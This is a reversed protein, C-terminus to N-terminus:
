SVPGVKWGAPYNAKYAAVAAARTPYGILTKHDDFSGDPKAQDVVFVPGDYDRPAGEAILTDVHAGDSGETGKIYGYHGSKIESSWQPPNNQKDSRTSGAPNEISVPMTAGRPGITTHGKVYNGALAQPGTPESLTNLPSTAAAHAAADITQAPAPAQPTDATPLDPQAVKEPAAESVGQVATIKNGFHVTRGQDWLEIPTMGVAPRNSTKTITREILKDADKGHYIRLSAHTGEPNTVIHVKQDGWEGQIEALAIAGKDDVYFTHESRPQPGQQGPHEPRAKKDRTTTGDDHVVYTSGKATSFSLGSTSGSSPPASAKPAQGGSASPASSQGGLVKQANLLRKVETQLVRARETDSPDGTAMLADQHNQLEDVRRGIAEGHQKLETATPAPAAKEGEKLVPPNRKAEVAAEAATIAAGQQQQSAKDATKQATQVLKDAAKRADAQQMEAAKKADAQQKATAQQAQEAARDPAPQVIFSGKIGPAPVAEYTIGERQTRSAANMDAAAQTRFPLSFNKPRQEEAARATEVEAAHADAPGSTADVTAPAPQDTIPGGAIQVKDGPAPTPLALHDAMGARVAGAAAEALPGGPALAQLRAAEADRAAYVSDAHDQAAQQAASVISPNLGAEGDIPNVSLQGPAPLAIPAAGADPQVPAAEAALKKQQARHALAHGALGFPAMLGVMGLTPPIVEMGAEHPDKTDIGANKEVLAQGYGQGYETAPEAIMAEGTHRLWPKIIGPDVDTLGKAAGAAIASEKSVGKAVQKAFFESLLPKAFAGLVRAGILNGAAEGLGEIAATKRAAPIAVEDSIGKERAKDLTQQGQQMAAPLVGALSSIGAIGAAGLGVEPLAALGGAILAPAAISPALMRGGGALANTVFNHAEPEPAYEPSDGKAKAWDAIRKGAEYVPRGPDSAYQLAQGVQQPIESVVGAALQNGIEGVASRKPPADPVFQGPQADPIFKSPDAM